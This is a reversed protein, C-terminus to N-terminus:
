SRTFYTQGEIRYPAQETFPWMWWTEGDPLKFFLCLEATGEPISLGLYLPEDLGLTAEYLIEDTLWQAMSGDANLVPSGSRLQVQLDTWRSVVLVRDACGEDLRLLPWFDMADCVSSDPDVWYFITTDFPLDAMADTVADPLRSNVREFVGIRGSEDQLYLTDMDTMTVSLEAEENSLRLGWCQNPLGEVTPADLVELELSEYCRYEPESDDLGEATYLTATPLYNSYWDSWREDVYLCAAMGEERAGVQKWAGQMDAACLEGGSAPPDTREFYFRQGYYELVLTDGELYGDISPALADAETLHLEGNEQQWGGDHISRKYFCRLVERYMASGDENLRLDAWWHETPLSVSEVAGTYENETERRVAVWYTDSLDSQAPEPDSASPPISPEGGGCATLSLLLALSLACLSRKM